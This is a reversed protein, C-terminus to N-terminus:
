WTAKDFLVRPKWEMGGEIQANKVLTPEDSRVRGVCRHECFSTHIRNESM